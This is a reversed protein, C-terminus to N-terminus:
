IPFQLYTVRCIVSVDSLRLYTVSPMMLHLFYVAQACIVLRKSGFVTNHANWVICGDLKINCKGTKTKTKVSSTKVVISFFQVL